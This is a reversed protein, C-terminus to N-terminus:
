RGIFKRIRHQRGNQKMDYQQLQAIKSLMEVEHPVPYDRRMKAYRVRRLSRRLMQVDFGAVIGILALAATDIWHGEWYFMNLAFLPVVFAFQWWWGRLQKKEKELSSLFYPAHFWADWHKETMVWDGVSLPYGSSDATM